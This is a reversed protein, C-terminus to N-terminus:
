RMNKKHKECFDLKYKIQVGSRVPHRPNSPSAGRTGHSSVSATGCTIRKLKYERQSSTPGIEM